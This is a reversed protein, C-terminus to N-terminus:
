SHSLSPPSIARVSRSSVTKHSRTASAPTMALSTTSTAPATGIRNLYRWNALKSCWMSAINAGTVQRSAKPKPEAVDPSSAPGTLSKPPPNKPSPKKKVVDPFQAVGQLDSFTFTTGRKGLSQCLELVRFWEEINERAGRSDM